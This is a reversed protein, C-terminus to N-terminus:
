KKRVCHFRFPRNLAFSSTETTWYGCQEWSWDNRGTKDRWKLFTQYGLNYGNMDTDSGRKLRSPIVVNDWGATSSMYWETSIDSRGEHTKIWADALWLETSEWGNPMYWTGKPVEGITLNYCYAMAPFDKDFNGTMKQASYQRALATIEYGNTHVPLSSLVDKHWTSKSVSQYPLKVNPDIWIYPQDPDEPDTSPINPDDPKEPDVPDTPVNIPEYGQTGSKITIWSGAKEYEFTVTRASETTNTPVSLTGTGSSGSGRRVYGTALVTEGSRARINLYQYSGEATVTYSAGYASIGTSPDPSISVADVTMGYQRLTYGQKKDECIVNISVTRQSWTNNAPVTIKLNRSAYTDAAQTATGGPSVSLSWRTNTALTATVTGGAQEIWGSSPSVSGNGIFTPVTRLFVTTRIDTVSGGVTSFTAVTNYQTGAAPTGEAAQYIVPSFSVECEAPEGQAGGTQDTNAAVSSGDVVMRRDGSTYSFRWSSNIRFTVKQAAPYEANGFDIRDPAYALFKPIYELGTDPHWGTITNDAMGDLPGVTIGFGDYGVEMEDENFGAITLEVNYAANAWLNYDAIEDCGLYINYSVEQWSAVETYKVMGKIAVYSCYNGQGDPATIASKEESTTGTGTGRRNPAIYWMCSTQAASVNEVSVPDYDRFNDKSAEPFVDGLYTTTATLPGYAIKTPANHLTIENLEFRPYGSTFNNNLTLSMRSVLRTLKVPVSSSGVMSVNMQETEGYMPLYSSADTPLSTGVTSTVQFTRRRLETLKTGDPLLEATFSEPANAVVVIVSSANERLMVPATLSTGSQAIESTPIYVRHILSGEASSETDFQLIWMDNVATEDPVAARVAARSGPGAYATLRGDALLNLYMSVMGQQDTSQGGTQGTGPGTGDDQPDGKSCGAVLVVLTIWIYKILKNM